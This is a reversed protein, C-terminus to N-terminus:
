LQEGPKTTMLRYLKSDKPFHNEFPILSEGVRMLGQGVPVDTVFSLQHESINLLKALEFRDNAAQNLMIIFESNSLMTRATVSHLLDEVNQTIGTCFGNCKRIRKWLRQLFQASYEHQFLLYIEDIFVFTPRGKQRNLTVRNFISDLVVLMGIPLLQNGLDRIDYCILRNETDVNTQRAFTDMNGVAFLEIALAINKAEMEPQLTLQEYLDVLTPPKGMYNGQQYVRYVNTICRDLISKEKPGLMSSGILHEVLSMIFESKLILPDEGDDGVYNKNLDMANIHHRSAASIEIVEGHLANVLPGYEREPDVILVDCDYKLLLKTLEQKAAFSKGSGSVGMIFSNGNQLNQRDVVIMNKSVVNQGYVIGNDHFIDQVRFPMLSAMSETTLTRLAEIRSVGFPLATNLGEIQQFKLPSIQCMKGRVFAMIDESTKDLEEKTDATLVLTLLGYMMRQDRKTLDDLYEVLENRQQQLDYPIVATYNRNRNQRQQWDTINKEIGLLRTEVDKIAEDAPVPHIDISLMMQTKLDTIKSIMEVDMYSAFDRLFLVRGFRNGMMFYDSRFEFSDPAIYDKAEHGAKKAAAIDFHYNTEEGTRYFEHFIRLRDSGSLSVCQSKLKNFQLQLEAAARAFYVRADELSRKTVTITIYKDQIITAMGTTIDTLIDNYEERYEDLQDGVDSKLLSSEYDLWNLFRNNITIKTVASTDLSNLLEAYDLFMSKQDEESAVAFNIDTFKFTKSYRDKGVLFIGDEWVTDVPIVDQIRKPVKYKEKTQM